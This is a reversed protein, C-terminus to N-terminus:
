KHKWRNILPLFIEWLEGMKDSGPAIDPRLKLLSSQRLDSIENIVVNVQEEPFYRNLLSRVANWSHHHQRIAFADRILFLHAQDMRSAGIDQILKDICDAASSWEELLAHILGLVYDLPKISENILPQRFLAEAWSRSKWEFPIEPSDRYSILFRKLLRISQKDAKGPNLFSRLITDIKGKRLHLHESYPTQKNWPLAFAVPSM